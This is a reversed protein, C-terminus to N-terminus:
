LGPPTEDGYGCVRVPLTSINETWLLGIIDPIAAIRSAGSARTGPAEGADADGAGTGRGLRDSSRDAGVDARRVAVGM